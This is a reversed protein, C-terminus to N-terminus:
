RRTANPSKALKSSKNKQGVQELKNEVVLILEEPGVPKSFCADAGAEIAKVDNGLSPFNTAIIKAANPLTKSTFLLLDIGDMDPLAFSILVADYRRNRMKNKAEEGDKATDVSFGRRQLIQRFVRLTSMNYDAV